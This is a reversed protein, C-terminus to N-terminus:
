YFSTAKPPMGMYAGLATAGVGAIQSWISPKEYPQSSTTTGGYNGGIFGSYQGLKNAPLDQYFNYRNVADGVENQAQGQKQGGIDLLHQIDAWDNAAFQPARNAAADMQGMGYQYNQSAYPAYAETLSRGLTDAHLGSGSRGAGTFQSNVSPMVKQQINAFVDDQYPNSNLYKGSLVDNNYGQAMGMGPNGQTARNAGKGFATNQEQSFPAVTSGPFYGPGPANYLTKAQSMVDQIFPKQFAPPETNNTSVAQKTQGPM